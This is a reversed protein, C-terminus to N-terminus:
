KNSPTYKYPEFEKILKSQIADSFESEMEIIVHTIDSIAEYWERTAVRPFNGAFAMLTLLDTYKNVIKKISLDGCFPETLTITGKTNQYQKYLEREKDM